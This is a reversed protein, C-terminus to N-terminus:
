GLFFLFGLSALFTLLIGALLLVLFVQLVLFLVLVGLARGPSTEFVAQVGLYVLYLVWFGALPMGLLPIIGALMAGQAYCYIRWAPNFNRGGGSLGVAGWLCAAGLALNVLNFAPAAVILFLTWGAGAGQLQPLGWAAAVARSAAAYFLTSWFLGALLGATGTILGFALAEGGSNRGLRRFFDRPKLLLERLTQILAPLRPLRPDEWPIPGATGPEPPAAAAAQFGPGEAPAM